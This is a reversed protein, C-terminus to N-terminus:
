KTEKQEVWEENLVLRKTKTWLVREGKATYTKGEWEFTLTKVEVAQTTTTKETAYKMPVLDHDETCGMVLCGYSYGQRESMRYADHGNDTTTVNTVVAIVITAILNTM